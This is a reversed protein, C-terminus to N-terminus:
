KVRCYYKVKENSEFLVVGGVGVNQGGERGRTLSFYIERLM